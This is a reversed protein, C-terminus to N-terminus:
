AKTCDIRQGESRKIANYIQQEFPHGTQQNGESKLQMLLRALVTFILQPAGFLPGTVCKTM